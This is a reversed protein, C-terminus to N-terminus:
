YGHNYLASTICLHTNINARMVKLALLTFYNVKLWVRCDSKRLWQQISRNYVLKNFNRTVVEIIFSYIIIIIIIILKFSGLYLKVSSNVSSLFALQEVDPGTLVQFPHTYGVESPCVVETHLWGGLGVWRSTPKCQFFSSFAFNVSSNPSSGSM